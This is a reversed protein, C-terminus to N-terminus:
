QDLLYKLEEPDRMVQEVTNEDYGGKRQMLNLVDDKTLEIQVGDYSFKSVRDGFLDNSVQVTPGEPTKATPRNKVLKGMRMREQATMMQSYQTGDPGEWSYEHLTPEDPEEYDVLGAVKSFDFRGEPSADIGLEAFVEALPLNGEDSLVSFKDPGVTNVLGEFDPNKAASKLGRLLSSFRQRAATRERLEDQKQRWDQTQQDLLMQRQERNQSLQLAADARTDDRRQADLRAMLEVDRRQREQEENQIGLATGAYAKLGAGGQRGQGAAVGLALSPMALKLLERLDPM